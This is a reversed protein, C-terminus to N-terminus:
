SLYGVIIRSATAVMVEPDPICVKAHRTCAFVNIDQL